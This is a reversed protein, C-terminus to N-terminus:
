PLQSPPPFYTAAISDSVAAVAIQILDLSQRLTAASLDRQLEGALVSRAHACSQLAVSSRPLTAAIRELQQVNHRVSRPFAEDALLFRVVDVGDIPGPVTRQYMQLASMSRLVGAWQLDAHRNNEGETLIGVARVDLVRTAMDAREVFRGLALLANAEDRRMSDEVIGWCLQVDAVARDCFRSRGSREIGDEVHAGVYLYLDNVTEWLQTPIIERTSRLNHRAAELSSAVSGFNDSAALVWRMVSREAFPDGSPDSAVRDRNLFAEVTGGIALLPEWTLPEDTPLDILLNTHERVIRATSAARELYRSAWYLNGAVRSLLM